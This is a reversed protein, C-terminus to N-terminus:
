WRPLFRVCFRDSRWIVHFIMCSLANCSPQKFQRVLLCLLNCLRLDKSPHDGNWSVPVPVRQLFTSLKSVSKRWFAQIQCSSTSKVNKPEYFFSARAIVFHVLKHCASLENSLWCEDCLHDGAIHDHPSCPEATDIPKNWSESKVPSRSSELDVEPHIEHIKPLRVNTEMLQIHLFCVDTDWLEVSYSTIEKSAPKLIFPAVQEQSSPRPSLLTVNM